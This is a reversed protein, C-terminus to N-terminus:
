PTRSPRHDRLPSGRHDLSRVETGISSESAWRLSTSSDSDQQEDETDEELEPHSCCRLYRGKSYYEKRQLDAEKDSVIIAPAPSQNRFTSSEEAEQIHSRTALGIKDKVGRALGGAWGRGVPRAEPALMAGRGGSGLSGSGGNSKKNNGSPQNKQPSLFKGENYHTKRHREFGSSHTKSFNDSSGSSRNDPHQLVKPYFNDMTAFRERLAEPTVTLSPEDSAQPSLRHYPTSPEDVKMFGYDKDAPHYTTMINMEDWHQSKKRDASSPKQILTHNSTKLINHPLDKYPKHPHLSTSGSRPSCESNHVGSGKSGLDSTGAACTGPIPANFGGPYTGSALSHGVVEGPPQKPRSGPAAVVGSCLSSVLGRSVTGPRGSCPPAVVGSPLGAGAAVGTIGGPVERTAGGPSEQTLSGAAGGSEQKEM